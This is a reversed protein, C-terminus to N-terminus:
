REANDSGGDRMKRLWQAQEAMFAEEEIEEQTLTTSAPNSIMPVANLSRLDKAHEYKLEEARYESIGRKLDAKSIGKKSAKAKKQADRIIQEQKTHIEVQTQQASQDPEIALIKELERRDKIDQWDFDAWMQDKPMLRGEEIQRGEDLRLYIRKTTRRDYAAPISWRKTIRAKDFWREKWALDCEYYLGKFRIGEPTVTAKEEELLKVHVMAPPKETLRGRRNDVGWNWLQSPYAQVGDAIMDKDRPYDKIKHAINHEIICGILLQRLEHLTLCADLQYDPGGREPYNPIAGPVWDIVFDDLVRFHREVIPKWDPRYPPTNVVEIKFHRTLFDSNKSLMEGRDGIIAKPLHQCPWDAETITYGYERCYDVKNRVANELLLRVGLWSPADLGAGLAMIAHSFVDSLIYIVPRGIKRSRDFESVLHVDGLTWDLQAISGPGDADLTSNGPIARHKLDYSRQGERALTVEVIDRSKRYVYLFQDYSPVEDPAPLLPVKVDHKEYKGRHFFTTKTKEYAYRLSRGKENEFYLKIGTLFQEEAVPDMNVGTSSGRRGLKKYNKAKDKKRGTGCRYYRSLLAQETQGGRWYRKVYRRVLKPDFGSSKAAGSILKGRVSPIFVDEHTVIPKIVKWVKELDAKEQASLDAKPRLEELYPDKDAIHANSNKLAEEIVGYSLYVPNVADDDDINTVDIVVVTACTPNIYLIRDYHPNQTGPWEIITNVNIGQM